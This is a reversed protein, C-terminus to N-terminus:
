LRKRKIAVNWDDTVSLKEAEMADNFAKEIHFLVRGAAAPSKLETAAKRGMAGMVSEFKEPLRKKWASAERSAAANEELLGRSDSGAKCCGAEAPFPLDGPRHEHHGGDKTASFAIDQMSWPLGSAKRWRPHLAAVNFVIDGDPRATGFEFFATFFHRCFRGTRLLHLCSCLHFGGLGFVVLQGKDVAGQTNRSNSINDPFNPAVLVVRTITRERALALFDELSSRPYLSPDELEPKSPTVAAGGKQKGEAMNGDLERLDVGASAQAFKVRRHGADLSSGFLRLCRVDKTIMEAKYCMGKHAEAESVQKLRSLDSTGAPRLDTQRKAKIKANTTKKPEAFPHFPCPYPHVRDIGTQKDAATVPNKLYRSITVVHM